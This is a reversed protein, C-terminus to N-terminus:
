SLFVELPLAIGFCSILETFSPEICKSSSIVNIDGEVTKLYYIYKTVSVFHESRVAEYRANPETSALTEVLASEM